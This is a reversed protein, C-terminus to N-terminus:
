TFMIFYWIFFKFLIIKLIILLCLFYM